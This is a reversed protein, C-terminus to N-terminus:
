QNSPIWFKVWQRNENLVFELGPELLHLGAGRMPSIAEASRMNKVTGFLRTRFADLWPLVKGRREANLTVLPWVRRNPGRLLLWRLSQQVDENMETMAELDDILLLAFRKENRNNHAWDALSLIFNDADRHYTPFVGMCNENEEFGEWENPYSTIIGFQVESPTHIISIAQAIMKLLATKGSGQDGTVLIPGPTPDNLNLLIPLGDYAAGLFLAEQPLTGFEALTDSLSMPALQLPTRGTKEPQPEKPALDATLEELVELALEYNRKLSNM